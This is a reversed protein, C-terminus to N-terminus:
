SLTANTCNTLTVTEGNSDIVTPQAFVCDVIDMTIWVGVYPQTAYKTSNVVNSFNCGNLTVLGSGGFAVRGTEFNCNNVTVSDDATLSHYHLAYGESNEYFTCDNFVVTDAYANRIGKEFTCGTFTFNAGVNEAMTFVTNTFTVNEFTMDDVLAGKMSSNSAFTTSNTIRVDGVGKYTVGIKENGALEYEGGTLIVTDGASANAIATKFETQSSVVVVDDFVVSGDAGPVGFMVNLADNANDWEGLVNTVQGAQAIVIIPFDGKASIYANGDLTYLIDGNALTENEVEKKLYVSTITDTTSAGSVLVGGNAAYVLCRGTYEVGDVTYIMDTIVNGNEDKADAWDTDNDYAVEIMPAIDKPYLVFVRVYADESGVNKVWADKEFTVTPLFNEATLDWGEDEKQEGDTMDEYLTIDVNGATFVNVASETDKFYALTGAAAMLAILCVVMALATIKKKMSM